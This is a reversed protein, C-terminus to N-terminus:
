PPTSISRTAEYQLFRSLSQGSSGSPKYASKVYKGLLLLNVKYQFLSCGLYLYRLSYIKILVLVIM